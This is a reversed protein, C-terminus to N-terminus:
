KYLKQPYCFECSRLKRRKAEEQSIMDWSKKISRCHIDNHYVKSKHTIYVMHSGTDHNVTRTPRKIPEEPTDLLKKSLITVCLFLAGFMILFVGFSKLYIIGFFLCGIAIIGSVATGIKYFMDKKDNEM